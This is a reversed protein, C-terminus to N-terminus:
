VMVLTIARDTVYKAILGTEVQRDQFWAPATAPPPNVFKLARVPQPEAPAQERGIGGAIRRRTEDLAHLPQAGLRGLESPGDFSQTVLGSAQVRDRFADQRTGFERDILASLPIDVNAAGTDLLFVLRDLGAGTATDFELETYSVQPKDPVPSGY